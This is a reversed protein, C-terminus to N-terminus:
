WLFTWLAHMDMVRQESSLICQAGWPIHMCELWHGAFGRLVSYRSQALLFPVNRVACWAGQVSCVASKRLQCVICHVSQVSCMACMSQMSYVACHVTQVYIAHQNNQVGRISHVKHVRCKARQIRHVYCAVYCVIHVKCVAGQVGHEAGQVQTKFYLIGNGVDKAVICLSPEEGTARTPFLESPLCPLCNMTITNVTKKKQVSWWEVNHLLDGFCQQKEWPGM